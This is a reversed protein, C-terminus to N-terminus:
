YTGCPLRAISWEYVLFIVASVPFARICTPVMGRFMFSPGQSRMNTLFLHRVAASCCVLVTFTLLQGM